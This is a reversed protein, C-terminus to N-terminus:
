RPLTMPQPVMSEVAAAINLETLAWVLADLRNPSWDDAQTWSTLEDELLPFAGVHHVRAQTWTEARAPDGYLGAIPEARVAKGRSATVKSTHVTGDTNAVTALVMDGGYNTEAVLRDARHDHYAAVAVRGWHNPGSPKLSEDALVAAHPLDQGGCPCAGRVVGAVVIGAETAGGPPDVAVVIRSCDPTQDLRNADIQDQTWLAGEVDTLLEGEIEQRGLATNGYASEIAQRFSEPNHPNDHLSGRTVEVDTRETVQRYAKRRKPTTSAIWRPSPGVRLGFELNSMADALDPISAMEEVWVLCSNGAARLTDVAKRNPIGVLRMEAGGEWVFFVIGKRETLRGDPRLSKLCTPHRIASETADALSPAVLLMKHPMAGTLCPAGEVHDTVHKAM